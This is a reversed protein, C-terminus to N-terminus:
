FSEIEDVLKRCRNKIFYDLIKKKSKVPTQAKYLELIKDSIDKPIKDYSVLNENRQYNRKETDNLCAEIGNEYFGELRKKMFSKQRKEENVLTDDDSCINPIGDGTDGMCIKDILSRKGSVEPKIFKKMKASYQRVNQYQHLQFNDQDSSIILVNQPETFLGVEKTENEQFYKVLVGMIDDAEAGDVCLVRYPFVEEIEKRLTAMISFVAKWNIGSDDRSKKRSAKYYQFVGKRWYDRGDVAIIVDGYEKGFKKKLGLISTLVVHRLLNEIKETDDSRFDSEFQYM